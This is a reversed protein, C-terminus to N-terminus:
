LKEIVRLRASRSRRNVELEQATPEIPKRPTLKGKPTRGCVCIPFDPPCICGKTYAAFKQKVMRDELSHFTIVAFRGGTNLRDFATDLATSLSELEGNVAIRIAQFTKKGPNGERKVAAPVSKKIIELLQLTTEVPAKERDKVINQAIKWAFKEEGFERLIRALDDASYTNVIDYASVGSQSMRMDLKADQLYSFGREATDLQHSSVGLDLLIGDVKDIGLSDLVQPLQAFDSQVVQACSYEALRETATRVADPDKDLALLRGTTLKAAIHSSHGAGGATGDVYIGDPKINLAEICENLMVSIHHFEM